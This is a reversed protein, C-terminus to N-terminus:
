PLLVDDPTAQTNIRYSMQPQVDLNPAWSNWIRSSENHLEQLLQRCLEDYDDHVAPTPSIFRFGFRVPQPEGPFFSVFEANMPEGQDTDLGELDSHAFMKDRLTIIADHINRHGAPVISDPIRIARRQKFPKAYFVHFAAWFAHHQPHADTIGQDIIHRLIGRAESMISFAYQWKYFEVRESQPATHM